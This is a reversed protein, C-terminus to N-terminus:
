DGEGRNVRNSDRPTSRVSSKVFLFPLPNKPIPLSELAEMELWATEQFPFSGESLVESAEQFLVAMGTVTFFLVEL